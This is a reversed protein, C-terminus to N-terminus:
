VYLERPRRLNEAKTTKSFQSQKKQHPSFISLPNLYMSIHTNTEKSFGGGYLNKSPDECTHINEVYAKFYVTNRFTAAQLASPSEQSGEMNGGDVSVTDNQVYWFMRKSGSDGSDIQVLRENDIKLRLCLAHNEHHESVFSEPSKVIDSYQRESRPIWYMSKSLICMSYRGSSSFESVPVRSSVNVLYHLRQKRLQELMEIVSEETHELMNVDHLCVHAIYVPYFSSIAFRIYYLPIKKTTENQCLHTMLISVLANREIECRVSRVTYNNDKPNQSIEIGPQHSVVENQHTVIYSEFQQLAKFIRKEYPVKNMIGMRRMVDLLDKSRSAFDYLSGVRYVDVPACKRLIAELLIDGYKRPSRTTDETGDPNTPKVVTELLFINGFEETKEWISPDVTVMNDRITSIFTAFTQSFKDLFWNYELCVILMNKLVRDNVMYGNRPYFGNEMLAIPGSIFGFFLLTATLKSADNLSTQAIDFVRKESILSFSDKEVAITGGNSNNLKQIRFHESIVSIVFNDKWISTCSLITDIHLYKLLPDENFESFMDLYTVSPELSNSTFVDNLAKYNESLFSYNNVERSKFCNNIFGRILMEFQSVNVVLNM